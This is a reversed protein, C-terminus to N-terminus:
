PAPLPEEACRARLTEQEMVRTHRAARCAAVEEESPLGLWRALTGSPRKNPAPVPAPAPSDAV